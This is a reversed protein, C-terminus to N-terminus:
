SGAVLSGAPTSERKIKAIRADTMRRAHVDSDHIEDEPHYISLADPRPSRQSGLWQSALGTAAKWLNNM